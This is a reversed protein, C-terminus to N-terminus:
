GQLFRIIRTRIRIKSKLINLLNFTKTRSDEEIKQQLLIKQAKEEEEQIKKLQYPKSFLEFEKLSKQWSLLHSKLTWDKGSIIDEELLNNFHIFVLDYIENIMVKGNASESRACEVFNWTSINCGRHQLIKVKNFYIPIVDLYKQDDYLGEARKKECKYECVNTWWDLINEGGRSVGIFGANFIGEQFLKHFHLNEYNSAINPDINRWHPTLLFNCSSLEDYLFRFDSCFFLDCDLYLVKEYTSLLFKLLIPKLTWRLENNNNLGNYKYVISNSTETKNIDSLYLIKITSPLTSHFIHNVVDVDVVLVYTHTERFRNLSENLALAFHLYNATVITCTTHSSYNQLM